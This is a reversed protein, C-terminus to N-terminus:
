GRKVPLTVMIYAGGTEANQAYISGGHEEIIKKVIALGLGTGKEKSTVYPEFVQDLADEPFGPGNDEFILEVMDQDLDSVVRSQVAIRKQQQDQTAEVSNKILNHIVQRLRIPDAAIEIAAADRKFEVKPGYLELVDGVFADIEIPEREITSPKAYDSFANVMTKMAEVQNVITTTANDLLGRDEDALKDLYKRRLREASLQIPTLPNKIEHALRRAVEGWAADRQARVLKTVDEFVILWGLDASDDSTMRTLYCLLVQRGDRRFLTIEDRHERMSKQLGHCVFDVFPQLTQHDKGLDIIPTGIFPEIDTRLIKAAAANGNRVACDDDLAMVGTSLHGLVTELYTHQSALEDQSRQALDRAQAIRRTMANFSAVLFSLEGQSKPVTLQRDYDGDAIARTGDVIDALPAVMRRATVFALWAAAFVALSLVLSLTLTFSFKISERLYARERYIAYASQVKESLDSVVESTPYFARLVFGRQDAVVCRIHLSGNEGFPTIGAYPDGNIVQQFIAPDPKQPVLVDLEVNSSAILAGSRDMLTMETAGSLARIEGITLALGAQSSDELNSLFNETVRLLVRKNMSISARNLELADEMAADVKIDFWSDIGRMLFQLSYYYVIGAPPLAIMVFLVIMRAMLRSGAADKRYAQLLRFLNWGILLVMTVLGTVIFILLPVFWEDLQESNEIANSMFHLATLLLALLPVVAVVGLSSKSLAKSAM